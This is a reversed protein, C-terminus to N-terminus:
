GDHRVESTCLDQRSVHLQVLRRIVARATRSVDQLKDRFLDEEDIVIDSPAVLFRAVLGCPKGLIDLRALRDDLTGRLTPEPAAKFEWGPQAVEGKQLVVIGKAHYLIGEEVRREAM